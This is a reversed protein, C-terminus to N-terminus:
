GNRKRKRNDREQADIWSERCLHVYKIRRLMESYIYLMESYHLLYKYVDHGKFWSGQIM